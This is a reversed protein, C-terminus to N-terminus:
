DGTYRHSWSGWNSGIKTHLMSRDFQLTGGGPAPVGSVLGEWRCGFFDCFLDSEPRSDAGFPTMTYSGLTAPPAATGPSTDVAIPSAAMAPTATTAYMLLMTALVKAAMLALLLAVRQIPSTAQAGGQYPNEGRMRTPVAVIRKM